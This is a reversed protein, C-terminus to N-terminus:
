NHGNCKGCRWGCCRFVRVGTNVGDVVTGYFLMGYWVMGYWVINVM